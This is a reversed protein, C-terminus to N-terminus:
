DNKDALPAKPRGQRIQLESHIRLSASEAMVALQRFINEHGRAQASPTSLRHAGANADIWARRENAHRRVLDLAALDRSSEAAHLVACLAHYAVEHQGAERAAAYLELASDRLTTVREDV